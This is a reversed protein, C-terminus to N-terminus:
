PLYIPFFDFCQCIKNEQAGFASYVTSKLWSILLSKSRPFFAIAFRSLINFLLSMVKDVFIWITLAIIKGSNMYPTPDYLLRLVLPNINKFQPAPSSM